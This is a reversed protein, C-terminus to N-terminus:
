SATLCYLHSASAVFIEGNGDLIPATVLPEAFAQLVRAPLNGQLAVLESGDALLVVDDSTLALGAFAPSTRISMLPRSAADLVSIHNPQRVFVRQDYGVAPPVHGGRPAREELLVAALREGTHNLCWYAKLGVSEVILHIRGAGDISLALPTFDGGLETQVKLDRDAVYVANETALVITDANSAAFLTDTKRTLISLVPASVLTGEEIERPGGLDLLEVVANKPRVAVDAVQLQEVGVSLLRSSTMGFYRRRFIRGFMLPLDFKVQADSLGRAIAAGDNVTLALEGDPSLVLDSEQIPAQVLAKGNGDFLSWVRDSEVAVRGAGGIVFAPAFRADLPSRWRERWTGGPLTLGVRSNASSNAFPRTTRPSGDPEDRRAPGPGDGRRIELPAEAAVVPVPTPALFDVFHESM